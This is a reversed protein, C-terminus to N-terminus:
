MHTAAAPSPRSAAVTHGSETVIDLVLLALNAAAAAGVLATPVGLLGDAAYGGLWAGVLSGTLAVTLGRHRRAHPWDLNVWALFVGLGIATGMSATVLFRSGIFTAPSLTRAVLVALFWGGLGLVVPALARLWVSARRGFRRRRRVRRAMVGLLAVAAVAFGVLVGLILWAITSWSLFGPDFDVPRNVYTSTDIEGRDFFTTLLRKSADPQYAWFDVNHGLEPLVVQHGNPLAPLLERTTVQKPTSFDVTGGVLLTEVESRRVERYGAYDPSAPWADAVRGGAWLFDGGANGLISGPDGGAAYYAKATEADIASSAAFEGWVAMEPFMLDALTSMAWLGSADGDAASLWADFTAPAYLPAAADTAHFLGWMSAARVNGDKIPLFLWHDPLNAATARMSGALDDIRTSCEEDRACLGSYYDLQEDTVKPDWLFHGPPNVGVMASRHISKPYRWGYIMATRTGASTSILNIRKYALATRAAEMDDVRQPLSYGDLDVGQDTLRKACHALMEGRLRFSEESVLDASKRLMVTVEPCDLVTSSDVGRYGVLVVDHRDTLRSAEPFSMNTAGPGGTLRFIPEAPHAGTARVRVVPLAILRSRPNRRNEPVVLTGCDADLTGGETDYACPAMSLDGAHAGEPVVTEPGSPLGIYVLGLLVLGIVALAAIRPRTFHLTPM